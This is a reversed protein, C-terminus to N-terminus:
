MLKEKVTSRVTVKMLFCNDSSHKIINTNLIVQIRRRNGKKTLAEPITKQDSNKTEAVYEKFQREFGYKDTRTRYAHFNFCVGQRDIYYDDSEVYTWNTIKQDDSQWRKSQEKIYTNYPIIATLQPHADELHRYNSESGYGADAAIVQTQKVLNSYTQLFPILTRTDTPNPFLQYALFFKERTAVQLNYGPKLQGNKMPDEKMLMFTADSDTKSYSNREGMLEKQFHYMKKKSHRQRLLPLGRKLKRRSQKKLNPSIRPEQEIESELQELRVELQILIEELEDLNLDTDEPILAQQFHEHIDNILSVIQQRNLEEFRITNKKWVFSYKNADALIKTGDIFLVDDIFGAQKLFHIFDDFSQTLITRLEVSVLFRCLTRYSPEAEQTLWRAPLNEQAFQEVARSSFIGRAYAYLLLKLLMSPDYEKPRGFM